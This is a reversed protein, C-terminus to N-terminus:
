EDQKKKFLKHAAYSILGVVTIHSMRVTQIADEQQNVDVEPRIPTLDQIVVNYVLVTSVYVAWPWACAFSALYFNRNTDAVWEPWFYRYFVWATILTGTM